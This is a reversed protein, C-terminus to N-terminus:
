EASETTTATRRTSGRRALRVVAANALRALTLSRAVVLQCGNTHARSCARVTM